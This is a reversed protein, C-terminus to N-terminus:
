RGFTLWIIQNQYNWTLNEILNKIRVKDQENKGTCIRYALWEEEKRDWNGVDLSRFRPDTEAQSLSPFM